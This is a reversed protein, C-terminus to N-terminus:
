GLVQARPRASGPHITERHRVNGRTRPLLRGGQPLERRLRLLSRRVAPPSLNLTECIVVFSFVYGSEKSMIWREAESRKHTSSAGLNQIADELIALMLARIGSCPSSVETATDIQLSALCVEAMDDM